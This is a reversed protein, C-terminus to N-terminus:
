LDFREIFRSRKVLASAVSVNAEDVM